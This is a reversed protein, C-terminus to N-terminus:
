AAGALPNDTLQFVARPMSDAAAWGHEVESLPFYMRCRCIRARSGHGRSASLAPHRLVVRVSDDVMDKEIYGIAAPNDRIRKKMEITNSV